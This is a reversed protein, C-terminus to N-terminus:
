IYNVYRAWIPENGKEKLFVPKDHFNLNKITNPIKEQIMNQQLFMIMSVNSQNRFLITRVSDM